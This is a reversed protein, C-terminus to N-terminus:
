NKYTRRVIFLGVLKFFSYGIAIGLVNLIIDDVDFIGVCLLWQFSEVVLILVTGFLIIRWFHRMGKFLCPLLFGMPIFVCINGLLNIILIDINFHDRNAVYRVITLFPVLNASRINSHTRYNGLFLEIILIIVYIIFFAWGVVGLFSRLKKYHINTVDNTITDM